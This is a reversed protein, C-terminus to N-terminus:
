HRSMDEVQRVELTGGFELHPSDRLLTVAEDYSAADIMWFGGLIEKSEAFPGDTVVVEGGRKRLTKGERDRLKDGDILKGKQRLAETWARYKGLARQMDEASMDPSMGAGRALVMFKAM